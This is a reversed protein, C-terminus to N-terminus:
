LISSSYVVVWCIIMVINRKGQKYFLCQDTPCVKFGGKSSCLYDRMTYYYIRGTNKLGYMGKKIMVCETPKLGFGQPSKMYMYESPKLQGELFASEIDIQDVDLDFVM